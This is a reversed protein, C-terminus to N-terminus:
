YTGSGSSSAFPTRRPEVDLLVGLDKALRNGEARLAIVEDHGALTIEEARSVKQRGWSAELATQCTALQVLIAAVITEGEASVATLAGELNHYSGRNVDPYGLYRRVQAKQDATLAM